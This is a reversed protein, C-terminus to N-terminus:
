ATDFFNEATCIGAAIRAISNFDSGRRCYKDGGYQSGIEVSVADLTSPKWLNEDVHWMSGMSFVPRNGTRNAMRDVYANAIVYHDADETIGGAAPKPIPRKGAIGVDLIAAGRQAANPNAM